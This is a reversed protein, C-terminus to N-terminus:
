VPPRLLPPSSYSLLNASVAAIYRTTFTNRVHIRSTTVLSLIHSTSCNHGACANDNCSDDGTCHKCAPMADSASAKEHPASSASENSDMGTMMCHQESAVAAAVDVSAFPSLVLLLSVLLSLLRRSLMM